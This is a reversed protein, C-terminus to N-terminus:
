VLSVKVNSLANPRLVEEFVKTPSINLCNPTAFTFLVFYSPEFDPQIVRLIGISQEQEIIHITNLFRFVSVRCKRVLGLYDEVSSAVRDKVLIGNSRSLLEPERHHLGLYTVSFKYRLNLAASAVM